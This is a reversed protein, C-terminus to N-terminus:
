DTKDNGKVATKNGEAGKIDDKGITPMESDQGNESEFLEALEDLTRDLNKLHEQRYKSYIKEVLEDHSVAVSNHTIHSDGLWHYDLFDNIAKHQFDYASLGMGSLDPIHTRYYNECKEVRGTENKRAYECMRVYIKGNEEDTYVDKDLDIVFSSKDNVLFFINEAVTSDKDTLRSWIEDVGLQQCKPEIGVNEAWDSQLDPFIIRDYGGGVLLCDFRSEDTFLIIPYEPNRDNYNRAFAMIDDVSYVDIFKRRTSIELDNFCCSGTLEVELEEYVDDGTLLYCKTNNYRDDAFVVEEIRNYTM